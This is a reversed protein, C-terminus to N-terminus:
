LNEIEKRVQEWFEETTEPSYNEEKACEESMFIGVNEVEDVIILAKRKLNDKAYHSASVWESLALPMTAHNLKEILQWAKEKPTIM